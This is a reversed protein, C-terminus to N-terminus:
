STTIDLILTAIKEEGREEYLVMVRRGEVIQSRNVTSPVRLDTGDSLMVHEGQVRAIYGVLEKVSAGCSPLTQPLVQPKTSPHPGPPTRPAQAMATAALFVSAGIVPMLWKMM